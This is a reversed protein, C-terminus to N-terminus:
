LSSEEARPTLPHTRIWERTEEHLRELYAELHNKDIRWVGRGGLKIAPLEHSRVLAYVQTVSVNLYTAVEELTMFRAVVGPGERSAKTSAKTNEV